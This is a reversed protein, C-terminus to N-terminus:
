FSFTTSLLQWSLFFREGAVESPLINLHINSGLALRDSLRYELGGGINVLFGFGDRDTRLKREKSIYAFGAGGQVFPLLHRTWPLGSLHLPAFLYQFNVTPAVILKRDSVGIQLLPGVNINKYLPRSSELAILFEDPDLTFGLGAHLAWPAILGIPETMVAVGTEVAPAANLATPGAIQRSTTCGAASFLFIFTIALVRM